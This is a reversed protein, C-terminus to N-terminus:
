KNKLEDTLEELAIIYSNEGYGAIVKKAAKATILVKREEEREYVNSLHVEYTPIMVAKIADHIALSYHSYAGPNIIIGDYKGIAKQIKTVIDGEYNSQYCDVKVGLEKASEKVYKVLAKYNQKGYLEPERIGLM